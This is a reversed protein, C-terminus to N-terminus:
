RRFLLPDELERQGTLVALRQLEEDPVIKIPGTDFPPALVHPFKDARM